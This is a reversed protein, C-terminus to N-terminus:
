DSSEDERCFAAKPVDLAPLCLSLLADCLVGFPESGPCWRWWSQLQGTRWGDVIYVAGDLGHTYEPLLPEWFSCANAAAEVAEWARPELIFVATWPDEPYGQRARCVLRGPWRAALVMLRFGRGSCRLRLAVDPDSAEGFAARPGEDGDLWSRAQAIDPAPTPAIRVDAGFGRLHEVLAEAQALPLLTGVPAPLSAWLRGLYSLELRPQRQRLWRLLSVKGPGTAGDLIVDFM